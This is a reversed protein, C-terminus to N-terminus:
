WVRSASSVGLSVLRLSLPFIEQRNGPTEEGQPTTPRQSTEESEQMPSHGDSDRLAGPASADRQDSREASSRREHYCCLYGKSEQM